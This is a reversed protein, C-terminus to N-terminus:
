DFLGCGPALQNPLLPRAAWHDGSDMVTQLFTARVFKYRECVRGQDKVKIYLGEMKRSLDAGHLARDPNQGLEIATKRLNESNEPSIFRSTALLSRLQKASRLVGEFLVPVHVVPANVLLATRLATDLFQETSLDLVDFAPFYHPLM